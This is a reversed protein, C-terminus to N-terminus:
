LKADDLLYRNDAAADTRSCNLENKYMFELIELKVVNSDRNLNDRLTSNFWM